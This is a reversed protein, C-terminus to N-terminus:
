GGEDADTEDIYDGPTGIVIGLEVEWDMKTSGKPKIVEDNPGCICNTWKSFVIPEEPIPLGVEKAHDSYNLGIGIFKAVDGVCAGIRGTLIPLQSIDVRAIDNLRDPLLTDGGIDPVIGSLDRALGDSDLIAPKEKGLPGVRLLKM